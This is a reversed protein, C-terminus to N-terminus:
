GSALMSANATSYLRSTDSRPRTAAARSPAATRRKGRPARAADAYAEEVCLGHIDCLGLDVVIKM